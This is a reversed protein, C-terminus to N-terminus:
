YSLLYFQAPAGNTVTSAQYHALPKKNNPNAVLTNEIVANSDPMWNASPGLTPSTLLTFDSAPTNTNSTFGITLANGPGRSVNTIAVSVPVLIAANPTKNYYIGNVTLSTIPTYTVDNSVVQTSNVRVDMYGFHPQDDFGSVFEFGVAATEPFKNNLDN